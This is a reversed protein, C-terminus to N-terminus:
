IPPSALGVGSLGPTLPQQAGQGNFHDDPGGPLGSPISYGSTTTIAIRDLQWSLLGWPTCHFPPTSLHLGVSRLFQQAEISVFVFDRCFRHRSGIPLQMAPELIHGAHM